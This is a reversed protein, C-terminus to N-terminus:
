FPTKIKLAHKANRSTIKYYVSGETQEADSPTKFYINSSSDLVIVSADVLKLVVSGKKSTTIMDGSQIEFGVKVKSKKLSGESKVKVNGDVKQVFGIVSSASAISLFSILISIFFIKM